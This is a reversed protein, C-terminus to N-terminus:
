LKKALEAIERELKWIRLLSDEIKQEDVSVWYAVFIAAVPNLSSVFILLQEWGSLVEWVRFPISLMMFGALIFQGVYFWLIIRRL